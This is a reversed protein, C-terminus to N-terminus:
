HGAFRLTAFAMGWIAIILTIQQILTPTLALRGKMEALDLQMKLETAKMGVFDASLKTFESRLDKFESRMDKIETRFARLEERTDSVIEELARLRAEM